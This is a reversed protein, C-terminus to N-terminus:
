RCAKRIEASLKKMLTSEESGVRKVLYISFEQREFHPPYKRAELELSPHAMGNLHTALFDPIYIACMGNQAFGIATSLLNVLYKKKRPFLGEPWVDREKIGMPNLPAASSPAVFPLDATAVGPFAGKKTYVGFKFKAIALHEVGEVTVPLYTFGLDIRNEILATEIQGPNLELIDFRSTPKERVIAQTFVPGCFVELAGVRFKEEAPTEALRGLHDVRELIDRASQYVRRGEPTAILGRGQPIFLDFGVESALVGMSKSLGGHSIGLLEAAKTLSGTEIITCFQRLRNTEMHFM